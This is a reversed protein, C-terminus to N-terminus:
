GATQFFITTFFKCVANYLLKCDTETFIGANLKQPYNIIYLEGRKLVPFYAGTIKKLYNKLELAATKEPLIANKEDFVIKYETKGKDSLKIVPNALMLSCLSISLILTIVFKFMSEEKIKTPM